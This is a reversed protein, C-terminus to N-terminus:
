NPMVAAKNRFTSTAMGCMKAADRASIRGARYSRLIDRFNPPISKPPRGFKVGRAKAAAIGQAQRAHISERESQAVFSLIQLVIDAIFTGLLDKGRRTDLLPMDLVCIDIGKEHTLVRWQALLESYNRGLRDISAVYLLDGSRMKGVLRAYEPRDFNTGSQKDIFINRRPIGIRSMALLQRAESQDTSSVRVYGFIRTEIPNMGWTYVSIASFYVNVIKTFDSSIM